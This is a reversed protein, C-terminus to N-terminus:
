VLEKLRELVAQAHGQAKVNPWHARIIGAPDILFTSRVVGMYEKGYNKKLQWVDYLEMLKHEPDSLLQITLGQKHVFKQHSECSDPSVGLITAQSAKFEPLFQTFDRAEITCGPTDDKPYFYLVVWQGAFDKLSVERHDQNQVRFDPAKTGVAPM